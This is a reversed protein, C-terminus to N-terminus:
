VGANIGKKENVKPEIKQCPALKECTNQSHARNASMMIVIIYYYAFDGGMQGGQM